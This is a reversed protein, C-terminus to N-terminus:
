LPSISASGLFQSIQTTEALTDTYFMSIIADIYASEVKEYEEFTLNDYKAKNIDSIATWESDDLYHRQKNRKLPNYKPPITNIGVDRM